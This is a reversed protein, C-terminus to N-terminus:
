SQQRLNKVFEKVQEAMDPRLYFQVFVGRESPPKPPRGAGPRAGGHKLKKDTM